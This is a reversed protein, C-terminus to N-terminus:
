KILSIGCGRGHSVVAALDFDIAKDKKKLRVLSQDWFSKTSLM